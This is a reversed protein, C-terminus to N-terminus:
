LIQKRCFFIIKPSKETLHQAFQHFHEKNVAPISIQVDIHSIPLLIFLVQRPGKSQTVAQTQGQTFCKSYFPADREAKWRELTCLILVKAIPYHKYLVTYTCHWTQICSCSAFSCFASSVRNEMDSSHGAQLFSLPVPKKREKFRSAWQSGKEFYLLLMFLNERSYVTYPIGNYINIYQTRSIM